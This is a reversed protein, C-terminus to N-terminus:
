LMSRTNAVAAHPTPFAAVGLAATGRESTKVNRRIIIMTIIMQRMAAATSLRPRSGARRVAGALAAAQRGCCFLDPFCATVLRFQVCADCRRKQRVITM